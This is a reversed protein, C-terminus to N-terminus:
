IKFIEEYLGPTYIFFFIQIFLYSFSFLSLNILAVILLINILLFINKFKLNLTLFYLFGLSLYFLKYKNENIGFNQLLAFVTSIFLFNLIYNINFKEKTLFRM